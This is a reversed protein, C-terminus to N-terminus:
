MVKSLIIGSVTVKETGDTDTWTSSIEEIVGSYEEVLATNDESKATIKFIIGTKVPPILFINNRFDGIIKQGTSSYFNTSKNIDFSFSSDHRIPATKVTGSTNKWVELLMRLNTNLNILQDTEYYADAVKIAFETKTTFLEKVNWTVM